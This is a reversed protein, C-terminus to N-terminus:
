LAWDGIRSKYLAYFLLYVNEKDTEQTIEQM